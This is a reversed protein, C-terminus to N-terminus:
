DLAQKLFEVVDEVEFLQDEVIRAIEIGNKFYILAPIKTLKIQPHNTYVGREERAVPFKAFLVKKELNELFTIGEEINPM